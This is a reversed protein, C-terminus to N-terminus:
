EESDVIDEEIEIEEQEAIYSEPNSCSEEEELYEECDQLVAEGNDILMEACAETDLEGCQVSASNAAVLYKGYYEEGDTVCISVEPDCSGYLFLDYDLTYIYRYYSAAFATAILVLVALLIYSTKPSAKGM